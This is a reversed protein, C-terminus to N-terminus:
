ADWLDVIFSSFELKISDLQHRGSREQNLYIYFLKYITGILSIAWNLIIEKLKMMLGCNMFIWIEDYEGYCLVVCV